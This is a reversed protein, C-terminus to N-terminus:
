LRGCMGPGNDEALLQAFVESIADAKFLPQSVDIFAIETGSERDGGHLGLGETIAVSFVLKKAELRPTAAFFCLRKDMKVENAVLRSRYM